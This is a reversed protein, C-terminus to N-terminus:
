GVTPALAERGGPKPAPAAKRGLEDRFISALWGLAASYMVATLRLPLEVNVDLLYGGVARGGGAPVNWSLSLLSGATGRHRAPVQRMVFANFLPNAVNMLISRVIYLGSALYYNSTFTMAVLLPISSSSVLLYVRLAGGYRDAVRPMRVMLLAMVLQQVGLVSGLQASTVGYKVTFYYDINQISMAAGFGILMEATAIYYFRRGLMRFVALRPVRPGDVGVERVSLAIPINVLSLLPLLELTARYVDTLPIGRERSVAVPIWGMFSGIAGGLTGAAAVYTFVYHLDEDRGSRSVLAQQSAGGLGASVGNLLFGAAVLPPQGTSILATGGAGLPLSAALVRRAGYVDSLIGGLLTFIATAVVAAGGMAGYAAGSYGLSRLYPAMVSWSLGWSVGGILSLALLKGDAKSLM